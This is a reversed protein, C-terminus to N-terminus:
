KPTINKELEPLADGDVRTKIKKYLFSSDLTAANASVGVSAPLLLLHEM